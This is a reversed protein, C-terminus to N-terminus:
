GAPNARAEHHHKPPPAGGGVAGFVPGRLLAVAVLTVLVLPLVFVVTALYPYKEADWKM